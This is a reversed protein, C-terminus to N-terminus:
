LQVAARGDRCPRATVTLIPELKHSKGPLGLLDEQLLPVLKIITLLCLMACKRSWLNALDECQPASSLCDLDLAFWNRLKSCLSPTKLKMREEKLSM